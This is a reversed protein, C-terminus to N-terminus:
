ENINLLITDKSSYWSSNKIIQVFQYYGHNHYEDDDYCGIVDLTIDMISSDSPPDLVDFINMIDNRSFIDRNNSIIDNLSIVKCNMLKPEVM